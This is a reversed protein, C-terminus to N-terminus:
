HAEVVYHNRHPNKVCREPPIRQAVKWGGATSPLMSTVAADIRPMEWEIPVCVTVHGPGGQLLVAESM